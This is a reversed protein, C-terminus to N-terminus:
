KSMMRMIVVKGETNLAHHIQQLTYDKRFIITIMQGGDNNINSDIFEYIYLTKDENMRIKSEDWNSAISLAGDTPKTFELEIRKNPLIKVSKYMLQGFKETCNYEDMSIPNLTCISYRVITSKVDTQAKLGLSSILLILTILKKM